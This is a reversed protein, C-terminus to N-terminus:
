GRSSHSSARLFHAAGVALAMFAGWIAAPEWDKGNPDPVLMIELCMFGAYACLNVAVLCVGLRAKDSHLVLALSVLLECPLIFLFLGLTSEWAPFRSHHDLATAAATYGESFVFLLLYVVCAFRLIM